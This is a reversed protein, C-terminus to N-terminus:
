KRVLGRASPYLEEDQMYRNAAHSASSYDEQGGRSSSGGGEERRRSASKPRNSSSSMSSSSGAGASSSSYSERDRERELKGAGASGSGGGGANGGSSERKKGTKPRSSSSKERDGNGGASTRDSPRISRDDTLDQANMGYSLYPSSIPPAGHSGGDLFAVDDQGDHGDSDMSLIMDVRSKMGPGAFEQTTKESGDLEMSLINDYKYRANVDFQKRQRAFESEPRRLKANSVPRGILSEKQNMFFINGGSLDLKPIIWQDDEEKFVARKEIGKAIEEPIFNQIILEKLKITQTLQRITDLMDTRETQFEEQLDKTERIAVQYKNWLKKLKKTKVEVEEQLSSFHEELQLAAEEKEALERALAAEQLQRERLEQEAKKLLAEQKAAKTVVESGKILKEEMGRLKDQLLRQQEEVKRRDEAEKDLAAQLEAREQATRSQQAILAKMDQQAQKMLFEKEEQAKLRLREMEEESIGVKVQVEKIVEREVIKEIIEKKANHIPIEKGTNEDIMVGRQSAALQEKLARIQDQYERLMADKPDENIKPKNKINKARNAYRLTSLTEDYNYDAPGCNACMVTKANGGLSNQLLRTLKSDRYPIHTSKADVLATIVNGLATLSLNIKNAEKLRDGTAGTKSQRESGALDVLNLKGVRIHDGSNEACEIVITFISHSRSSTANMLTAGVSRNRKGSQM